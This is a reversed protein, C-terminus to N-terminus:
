EELATNLPLPRVSLGPRQGRERLQRAVLTLTWGSDVIDDVLLVPGPRM